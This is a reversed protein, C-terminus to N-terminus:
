VLRMVDPMPTLSFSVTFEGIGAEVMGLEGKLAGILLGVVMEAMVLARPLALAGEGTVDDLLAQREGDIRHDMARVNMLHAGEDIKRDLKARAPEFDRM